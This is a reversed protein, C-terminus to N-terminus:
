KSSYLSISSKMTLHDSFALLRTLAFMMQFEETWRCSCIRIYWTLPAIQSTEDVSYQKQMILHIDQLLKCMSKYLLFSPSIIKDGLSNETLGSLEVAVQLRHRLFYVKQRLHQLNFGHALLHTFEASVGILQLLADLSSQLAELVSVLHLSFPTKPNKNPLFFELNIWVHTIKSCPLEPTRLWPGAHQEPAPELWASTVPTLGASGWLAVWESVPAKTLRKKIWWTREAPMMFSKRPKCRSSASMSLKLCCTCATCSHWLARCTGSSTIGLRAIQRVARRRCCSALWSCCTAICCHLMSCTSCYREALM